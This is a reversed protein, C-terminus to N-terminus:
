SIGAHEFADRHAAEATRIVQLTRDEEKGGGGGRVHGALSQDNVTALSSPLPVTFLSRQKDSIQKELRWRTKPM